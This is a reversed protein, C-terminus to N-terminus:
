AQWEREQWEHVMGRLLSCNMRETKIIAQRSYFSFHKIFTSHDSNLFAGGPSFSCCVIVGTFFSLQGIRFDTLEKIM